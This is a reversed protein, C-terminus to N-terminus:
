KRKTHSEYNETCQKDKQITHLSVTMNLFFRSHRETKDFSRNSIRLNRKNIIQNCKLLTYEFVQFICKCSIIYM